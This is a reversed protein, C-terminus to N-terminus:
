DTGGAGARYSIAGSGGSPKTSMKSMTRMVASKLVVQVDNAVGVGEGVAVGVAVGVRVGLEEVGAAPPPMAKWLEAVVVLVVATAESAIALGAPVAIPSTSTADSASLPTVIM